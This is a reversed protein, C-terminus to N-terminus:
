KIMCTITFGEIKAARLEDVKNRSMQVSMVAEDGEKSLSTIYHKGTM